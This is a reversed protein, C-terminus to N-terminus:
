SNSSSTDQNSAQRDLEDLRRNHEAVAIENTWCGVMWTCDRIVARLVDDDTDFDTGAFQAARETRTMTLAKVAQRGRNELAPRMVENWGSTSTTMRIKQIQEENLAM